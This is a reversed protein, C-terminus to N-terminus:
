CHHIILYSLCLVITIEADHGQGFTASDFITFFFVLRRGLPIKGIFVLSVFMEADKFTLHPKQKWRRREKERGRRREKKGRKSVVDLRYYNM